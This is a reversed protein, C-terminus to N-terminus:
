EQEVARSCNNVGYGSCTKPTPVQRPQFLTLLPTMRVDQFVKIKDNHKTLRALDEDSLEAALWPNRKYVRLTQERLDSLWRDRAEFSSFQLIVKLVMLIETSCKQLIVVRSGYDGAVTILEGLRPKLHSVRLDYLAVTRRQYAILDQCRTISVKSM